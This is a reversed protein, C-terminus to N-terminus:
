SATDIEWPPKRRTLAVTTGVLLTAGAAALALVSDGPHLLWAWPEPRGGPGWGTAACLLPVAALAAGASRHGLLPHLILALGVYGAINRGLVMAIDTRWLVHCIVAALLGVVAVSVALAVDWHRMARSAVSETRLDGRGMGFLLLIAPALTILHGVLFQGAQGALAPVPLESGGVLLGAGITGAVAAILAPVARVKLWWTM